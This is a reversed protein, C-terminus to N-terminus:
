RVGHKAQHVILLSNKCSSAGAFLRIRHLILDVPVKYCIKDDREETKDVTYAGYFPWPHSCGRSRM